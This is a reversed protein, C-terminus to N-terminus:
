CDGFCSVVAVVGAEVEAAAVMMAVGLDVESAVM